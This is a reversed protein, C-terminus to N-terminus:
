IYIYISLSKKAIVKQCDQGQKIWKTHEIRHLNKGNFYAFPHSRNQEDWWIKRLIYM